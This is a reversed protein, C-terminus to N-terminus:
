FDYTVGFSIINTKYNHYGKNNLLNQYDVWLGWGKEQDMHGDFGRDYAVGDERDDETDSLDYELGIGYSFGNYTYNDTFATCKVDIETHGYGLLGYINVNESVPYQPKLYIGYHSMGDVWDEDFATTLARAEVGVYQNYEWGVRVIGGWTSDKLRVDPCTDEGFCDASIGAWMLGVGIYFPSPDDQAIPVVPVIIPAVSGGAYLTGTALVTGLALIQITKKM